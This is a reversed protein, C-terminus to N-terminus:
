GLTLIFIVSFTAGALLPTGIMLDFPPVHPYLLLGRNSEIAGSMRSAINRMSLYTIIGTALFPLFEMGQPPSRRGILMYGLTFVGVLLLPEVLAWLYGLSSRGYRGRMERLVLAHVVRGQVSLSRSFDGLNSRALSM